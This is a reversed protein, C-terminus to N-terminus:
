LFRSLFKAQGLFPIAILLVHRIAHYYRAFGESGVNPGPHLRDSSWDSVPLEQKKDNYWFGPLLVYCLDSSHRCEKKLLRNMLQARLRFEEVSCGLRGKGNKPVDARKLVSGFMVTSVGFETILNSAYDVLSNFVTRVNCSKSALDNAAAHFIVTDPNMAGAARVADRFKQSNVTPAHLFHVEHIFDDVYLYKAYMAGRSFSGDALELGRGDLLSENDFARFLRKPMSHGIICVVPKYSLPPFNTTINSGHRGKVM